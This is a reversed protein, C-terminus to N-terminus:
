YNNLREMIMTMTMASFTMAGAEVADIYSQDAEELISTKKM